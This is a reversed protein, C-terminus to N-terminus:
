DPNTMQNIRIEKIRKDIHNKQQILLDSKIKLILKGSENINAITSRLKKIQSEYGYTNNFSKLLIPYQVAQPYHDLLIELIKYEEESLEKKFEEVNNAIQEFIEEDKSKILRRRLVTLLIILAIVSLTVIIVIAHNKQTYAKFNETKVGLLEDEWFFVPATCNNERDILAIFTHTNNNFKLEPNFELKIDTFYFVNIDVYKIVVNKEFDVYYVGYNKRSQDTQILLNGNKYKITIFPSKYQIEDAIEGLYQWTKQKFSYRWADKMVKQQKYSEPKDLNIGAGAGIYLYDKNSQGIAQMRREFTKNYPTKPALVEWENKITDYYIIDNRFEFLGYGSCLYLENKYVYSISGYHSRLAYKSKNKTFKVGDFKYYVGGSTHYLFGQNGNEIFDFSELSEINLGHASKEWNIKDKTYFLSDNDIVYYGDKFTFLIKPKLNNFYINEANSYAHLFLIFIAIFIFKSTKM